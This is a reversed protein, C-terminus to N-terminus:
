HLNFVVHNFVQILQSVTAGAQYCPRYIAAAQKRQEVRTLNTAQCISSVIMYFRRPTSTLSTANSLQASMQLEPAVSQKLRVLM